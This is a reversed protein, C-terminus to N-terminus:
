LRAGSANLVSAWVAHEVEDAGLQVDNSKKGDGDKGEHSKHDKGKRIRLVHGLQLLLAPLLLNLQTHAMQQLAHLMRSSPAAVIIYGTLEAAELCGHTRVLSADSGAYIFVLNANGEGTLIWEQQAAM